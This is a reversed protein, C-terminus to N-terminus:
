RRGARHKRDGTRNRESNKTLKAIEADTLAIVKVRPVGDVAIAFWDGPGLEDILEELRAQAEVIDIVRM